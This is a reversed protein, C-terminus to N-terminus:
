SAEPSPALIASQHLAWSLRRIRDNARPPYALSGHTISYNADCSSSLTLQAKGTLNMAAFM